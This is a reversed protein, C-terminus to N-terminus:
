TISDLQSSFILMTEPSETESDISEFVSDHDFKLWDSETKHSPSIFQSKSDVKSLSQPMTSNSDIQSLTEPDFQSKNKFFHTLTVRRIHTSIPVVHSLKKNVKVLFFNETYYNTVSLNYWSLNLSMVILFISCIQFIYLKNVFNFFTTFSTNPCKFLFNYVVYM